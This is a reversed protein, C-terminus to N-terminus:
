IACLPFVMLRRKEHRVDVMMGHPNGIHDSLGYNKVKDGARVPCRKQWGSIDAGTDPDEINQKVIVSDGANIQDNGM